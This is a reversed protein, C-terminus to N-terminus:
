TYIIAKLYFFCKRVKLVNNILHAFCNIREYKSLASVINPGRDSVFRVHSKWQDISYSEMTENIKQELAIASADTINEMGIVFNYRKINLKEIEINVHAVIVMYENKKYDDKWCDIACSFGGYKEVCQKLLNSIQESANTALKSIHDHIQKLVVFHNMFNVYLIEDIIILQNIVNFDNIRNILLKYIYITYLICVHFPLFKIAMIM